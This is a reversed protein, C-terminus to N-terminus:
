MGSFVLYKPNEESGMTERRRMRAWATWEAHPLGAGWRLGEIDPESYSM